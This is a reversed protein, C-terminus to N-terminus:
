TAMPSLAGPHVRALFTVVVATIFAEAIVLPLYTALLVSAVPTYDPSSLALAVAVLGGTVLVSAAGASAALAMRLPASATRRIPGGLLCGVLVAPAAINFVNVGLTTLGGFGFLLAQLLLAVTVAPFTAPGLMIGMLGGLLLHVSSPGAPIAVLSGAFFAASLIAARPIARDDLARLGWAVGGVALVAGGILVPASLIGDPIHAM